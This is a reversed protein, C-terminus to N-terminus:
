HNYRYDLVKRHVDENEKFTLYNLYEFEIKAIAKM